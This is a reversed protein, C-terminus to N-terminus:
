EGRPPAAKEQEMLAEIGSYLAAIIDREKIFLRASPSIDVTGDAGAPHGGEFLHELVGDLHQKSCFGQRIRIM